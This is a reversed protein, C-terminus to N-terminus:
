IIFNIPRTQKQIFKALVGDNDNNGNIIYMSNFVEDNLQKLEDKDLTLNDKYKIDTSTIEYPTYIGTRELRFYLTGNESLEKSNFMEYFTYEAQRNQGVKLWETNENHKIFGTFDNMERNTDGIFYAKLIRFGSPVAIVMHHFDKQLSVQCLGEKALCYQRYVGASRKLRFVDEDITSSDSYSFYNSTDFTNDQYVFVRHYGTVTLKGLDQTYDDLATETCKIKIYAGDLPSWKKELYPYNKYKNEPTGKFNLEVNEVINYTTEGDVFMYRINNKNYDFRNTVYYYNATQTNYNQTNIQFSNVTEPNESPTDNTMYYSVKTTFSSIGDTDNDKVKFQFEVYKIEAGIPMEINNTNSSIIYTYQTDDPWETFGINYNYISADAKDYEAKISCIEVISSMPLHYTYSDTVVEVYNSSINSTSSLRSEIKSLLAKDSLYSTMYTNDISSTLYSYVDNYSNSIYTLNQTHVHSSFGYGGGLIENGLYTYNIGDISNKLVILAGSNKLLLPLSKNKTVYLKIYEGNFRDLDGM